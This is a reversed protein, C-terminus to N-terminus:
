ARQEGDAHHEGKDGRRGHHRNLIADHVEVVSAPAILPLFLDRPTTDPFWTM